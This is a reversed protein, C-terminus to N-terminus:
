KTCLTEVSYVLQNLVRPVICEHVPDRIRLLVELTITMEEEYSSSTTIPSSCMHNVVVLISESSSQLFLQDTVYSGDGHCGDLLTTEVTM